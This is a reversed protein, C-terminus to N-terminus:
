PLPNKVFIVATGDRYVQRWHSSAEAAAILEPQEALSLLLTQVQYRELFQEWGPLANVIVVYDRWVEPSYFEIRPDVFVRYAPYAAWILYSGYGMDHFLEGPLKENLLFQTAQVPTEASVLGSKVGPFPLAQKFWPLSLVAITVLLFLLLANVPASGRRREPRPGQRTFSAALAALQDALIPATALGFWIIGRSTKLGLLSFFLFSALQFFDPRRPSVALLIAILLLGSLFLAGYFTDFSPPAWEPVRNQVTPDTSLTQVYQYIFVGRPNLLCALLALILAIVPPLLGKWSYSRDKRIRALLYRWLEDALWIGLVAFGIIFSGHSNAWVVMGVPFVILWAFHPKLRYSYIALLYLAGILFTITQTRVNWNTIGLLIAFLTVIAAIRWSRTVRWGIWLLFGYAATLLLSHLFIVLAPGGLRYVLYLSVEALWFMNYSPYPQGPMTFSYVDLAPIERTDLIERGVAIHWWFDHPRIPYTNATIFVCVIAILPWLHELSFRKAKGM